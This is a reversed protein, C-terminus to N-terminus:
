HDFVWAFFVHSPAADLHHADGLGRDHHREPGGRGVESEDLGEFASEFSFSVGVTEAVRRALGAFPAGDGVGIARGFVRGVAFARSGGGLM